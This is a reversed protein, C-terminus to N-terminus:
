RNTLLYFREQEYIRNTNTFGVQIQLLFGLFHVINGFFSDGHNTSTGNRFQWFMMSLAFIWCWGGDNIMWIWKYIYYINHLNGLIPTGKFWGNKSLSEMFFVMRHESPTDTHFLGSTDWRHWRCGQSGQWNRPHWPKNRLWRTCLAVRKKPPLMFLFGHGKPNVNGKM